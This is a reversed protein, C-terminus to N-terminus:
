EISYWGPQSRELPPSDDGLSAITAEKAANLAFLYPEKRMKSRSSRADWDYEMGPTLFVYENSTDLRPFFEPPSPPLAALWQRFQEVSTDEVPEPRVPRPQRKKVRTPRATGHTERSPTLLGSPTCPRDSDTSSIDSPPPEYSGGRGVKDFHAKFFRRHAALDEKTLVM